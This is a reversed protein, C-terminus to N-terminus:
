PKNGIQYQNLFARIQKVQYPKVKGGSSQLNLKGTAGSWTFIHHSGRVRLRFGLHQLLNCIADFPMNADSAGSLILELLKTRNM